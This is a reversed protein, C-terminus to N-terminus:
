LVPLASVSALRLSARFPQRGGRVFVRARALKDSSLFQQRSEALPEAGLLTLHSIQPAVPQGPDVDRATQAAVSLGTAHLKAASDFTHGGFQSNVLAIM